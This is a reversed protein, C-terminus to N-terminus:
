SLCQKLWVQSAKVAEDVKQRINAHTCDICVRLHETFEGEIVDLDRRRRVPLIPYAPNDVGCQKCKM